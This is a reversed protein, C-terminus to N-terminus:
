NLFGPHLRPGLLGLSLLIHLRKRLHATMKELMRQFSYAMCFHRHKESPM